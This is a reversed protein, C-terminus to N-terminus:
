RQNSQSRSPVPPEGCGTGGSSKKFDALLTQSHTPARKRTRQVRYGLKTKPKREAGGDLFLDCSALSAAYPAGRQKMFRTTPARSFPSCPIVMTHISQSESGRHSARYSKRTRSPKASAVRWKEPPMR